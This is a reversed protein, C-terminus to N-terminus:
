PLTIFPLYIVATETVETDDDQIVITVTDGALILNMPSLLVLNFIENSEVLDDDLLPISVVQITSGPAFTLTGSIPLYDSHPVATDAVTEYDVTVTIEPAINLTFTLVATAMGETVTITDAAFSLVPIVPKADDDTITLVATAPVGLEVNAVASLTVTLSETIEVQADDLITVTVSQVTQGPPFTLTTSLPEYDQFPHATNATTSVHVTATIEPASNLTITLVATAAGETVTLAETTFTSVPVVPEEDDDTITLVATAPVGLEVNAVASLTVTLSETMEVQGDDLITVTVTQVTQGPPFTLTSSMPVYDQFPLATNATTSVHVTATIVPPTDLTVTFVATAMGETVTLHDTQFVATPVSTFCISPPETLWPEYNVTGSIEDGSGSGIGGPGSADGWWNYRADVLLSNQNNLGAGGNDNISSSFVTVNPNNGNFIHIGDNQNQSFTSCVATVAGEEVALGTIGSV